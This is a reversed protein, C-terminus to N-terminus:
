NALGGTEAFLTADWRSWTALAGAFLAKWRLTCVDFSQLLDEGEPLEV